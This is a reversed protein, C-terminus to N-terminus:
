DALLHSPAAAPIGFLPQASAPSNAGIGGAFGVFGAVIIALAMARRSSQRDRLAALGDFVVADLEGLRGPLPQDRLTALMADIDNM